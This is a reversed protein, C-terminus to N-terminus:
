RAAKVVSVGRRHEGEREGKFRNNIVKKLSSWMTNRRAKKGGRVELHAKENGEM